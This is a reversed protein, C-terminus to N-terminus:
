AERAILLTPMKPAPQAATDGAGGLFPGADDNAEILEEIRELLTTDREV